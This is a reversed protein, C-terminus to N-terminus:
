RPARASLLADIAVQVRNPAVEKIVKCFRVSKIRRNQAEVNSRFSSLVSDISEERQAFAYFHVMGGEDKIIQSAAPLYNVAESPLNMIVRNALGRLDKGVLEKVDGHIPIVRDAVGNAFANERLYKVAAPNIDVSYVTSKPQLKAILVSYPGVGAFMDVVFEDPMVQQAIRMRERSLRPSFYVTSVDLHYRCSFERYFTETGGVGAMVEFRRTRFPGEVQSSRRLALRIHPNIEIIGRGIVASFQETSEPLEIVAIDGISDFSRPLKSILEDPIKGRLYAELRRPKKEIGGFFGRQSKFDGVQVKMLRTENETLERLLPVHIAGDPRLFQCTYDVLELERLLRLGKEAMSLPLLIGVQEKLTWGM